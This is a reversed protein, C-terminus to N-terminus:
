DYSFRRAAAAGFLVVLWRPTAWMFLSLFDLVALAFDQPKIAATWVPNYSAALLIGVVAANVGKLAAQAFPKSRM